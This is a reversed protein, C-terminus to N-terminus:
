FGFSGALSSEGEVILIAGNEVRSRWENSASAGARAVFIRALGAPRQQLGISSLIAPWAGQDDSLVSFYPLRQLVPTNPHQASCCMAALLVSSALRMGCERAFMMSIPAGRIAPM